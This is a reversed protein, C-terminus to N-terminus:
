DWNEIKKAHKKGRRNNVANVERRAEYQSM